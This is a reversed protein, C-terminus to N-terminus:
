LKRNVYYLESKVYSEASAGTVSKRWGDRRGQGREHSEGQGPVHELGTGQAMKHGGDAFTNEARSGCPYSNDTQALIRESM